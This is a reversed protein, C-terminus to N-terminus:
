RCIHTFADWSDPQSATFAASTGDFVAVDNVGPTGNSWNSGSQYTTEMNYGVIRM